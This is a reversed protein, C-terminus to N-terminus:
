EQFGLFPVGLKPLDGILGMGFVGLLRAHRQSTQMSTKVAGLLAESASFGLSM